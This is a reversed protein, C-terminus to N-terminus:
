QSLGEPRRAACQDFLMGVLLALPDGSLLEDAAPKQAIGVQLVRLTHRM